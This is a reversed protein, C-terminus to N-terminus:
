FGLLESSRYIFELPLKLGLVAIDDLNADGGCVICMYVSPNASPNQCVQVVDSHRFGRHM